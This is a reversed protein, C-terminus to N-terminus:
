SIPMNFLPSQVFLHGRKMKEYNRLEPMYTPAIRLVMADGCDNRDDDFRVAGQDCIQRPM